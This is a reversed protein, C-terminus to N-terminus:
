LSCLNGEVESKVGAREEYEGLLNREFKKSKVEVCGRIIIINIKPGM